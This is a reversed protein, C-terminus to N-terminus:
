NVNKTYLSLTAQNNLFLKWKEIYNLTDFHWKEIIKLSLLNWKEIHSLHNPHTFAMIFFNTQCKASSMSM